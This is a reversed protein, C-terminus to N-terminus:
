PFLHLLLLFNLIFAISLVGGATILIVAVRIQDAQSLPGQLYIQLARLAALPAFILAGIGALSLGLLAWGLLRFALALPRAERPPYPESIARDKPVMVMLDTGDSVVYAGHNEGKYALFPNKELLRWISEYSLRKGAQHHPNLFHVRNLCALVERLSRARRARALWAEVKQSITPDVKPGPRTARDENQDIWLEQTDATPQVAVTEERLILL